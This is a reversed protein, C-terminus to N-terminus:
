PYCVARFWRDPVQRNAPRQLVRGKTIAVIRCGGGFIRRAGVTATIEL